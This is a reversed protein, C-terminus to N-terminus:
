KKYQEKSKLMEEYAKNIVDETLEYAKKAGDKMSGIPDKGFEIIQDVKDTILNMLEGLSGGTAENILKLEKISMTSLNNDKLWKADIGAIEAEFAKLEGESITKIRQADILNGTKILNDLESGKKDTDTIINDTEDCM